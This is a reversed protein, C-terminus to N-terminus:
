KPKRWFGIFPYLEEKLSFPLYFLVGLGPIGVVMLILLLKVYPKCKQGLISWVVCGLVMVWVLLLCIAIGRSFQPNGFDFKSVIKEIMTKARGDTNGLDRQVIYVAGGTKCTKKGSLFTM